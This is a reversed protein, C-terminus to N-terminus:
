GEGLRRFKVKLSSELIRLPCEVSELDKHDYKHTVRFGNEAIGLSKRNGRQADDICYHTLELYDAQKIICYDLNTEDRYMWAKMVHSKMYTPLKDVLFDIFVKNEMEKWSDNMRSKVMYDLDGTFCEPLDHVLARILVSLIGAERYPQMAIGEGFGATRKEESLWLATELVLMTVNYSHEAVNQTRSMDHMHYRKIHQLALATEQWSTM